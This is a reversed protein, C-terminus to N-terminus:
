RKLTRNPFENEKFIALREEKSKQALLGKIEDLLEYIDAAPKLNPENNMKRNRREFATVNRYMKVYMNTDSKRKLNPTVPTIEGPSSHKPGM